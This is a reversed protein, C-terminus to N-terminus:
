PVLREEDEENEENAKFFARRAESGNYLFLASSAGANQCCNNHCCGNRCCGCQLLMACPLEELEVSLANIIVDTQVDQLKCCRETDLDAGCPEVAM